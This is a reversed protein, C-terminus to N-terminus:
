RPASFKSIAFRFTRAALRRGQELVKTTSGTVRGTFKQLGLGFAECDFSGSRLADISKGEELKGDTKLRVALPFFQKRSHFDLGVLPLIGTQLVLRQADSSPAWGDTKRNWVEIGSLYRLWDTRFMQWASRRSPHAFVCVGGLEVARELLKQTEQGVGLFPIDGWVLIHVVNSPDSYEIGPVVLLRDSSASQCAARYTRRREENFGLDHETMLLLEYGRDAFSNAISPLDWKGDYSWRSHLHLAAKIV